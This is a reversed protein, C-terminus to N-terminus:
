NIEQYKRFGLYSCGTVRIIPNEQKLSLEHHYYASNMVIKPLQGGNGYGCSLGKEKLGNFISESM